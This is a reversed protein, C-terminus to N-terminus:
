AIGSIISLVLKWIGFAGFIITCSVVYPVLTEKVKVQQEISGFIYTIGLVAGVIVSLVVGLSFLLNYIVNTEEQLESGNIASGGQKGTNIFNEGQSFINGWEGEAYSNSSCIIQILMIILIIKLIVKISQKLLKQM